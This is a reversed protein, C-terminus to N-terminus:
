PSTRSPWFSSSRRSSCTRSVVAVVSVAYLALSFLPPSAPNVGVARMWWALPGIYGPSLAELRGFYWHEAALSGMRYFEQADSALVWFGNGLQLSTMLPLRFYSVAVFFLAGSARIVLGAAFMVGALRSRRHVWRCAWVLGAFVLCIAVIHVVTM